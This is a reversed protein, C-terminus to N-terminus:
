WRAPIRSSSPDQSRGVAESAGDMLDLLERAQAEYRAMLVATFQQKGRLVLRSVHALDDIGHDRAIDERTRGEFFWAFVVDAYRRNSMLALVDLVIHHLQDAALAEDHAPDDGPTRGIIDSDSYTQRDRIRRIRAIKLNRAIGMLYAGLKAPAKLEGRQIKELACILTDQSIDEAVDRDCGRLCLLNIIRPGHLRCLCDSAARDGQRIRNVLEVNFAAGTSPTEPAAGKSVGDDPPKPELYNEDDM